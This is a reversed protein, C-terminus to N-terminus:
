LWDKWFPPRLEVGDAGLRRAADFLDVIRSTGATIREQYQVVSILVPREGAM